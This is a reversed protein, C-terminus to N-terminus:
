APNISNLYDITDELCLVANARVNAPLVQLRGLDRMMRLENTLKAIAYTAAEQDAAYAAALEEPSLDVDSAVEVKPRGLLNRNTFITEHKALKTSKIIGYHIMMQRPTDAHGTLEALLETALPSQGADDDPSTADLLALLPAADTTKPLKSVKAAFAKYTAMYNRAHRSTFEFHSSYNENAVKLRKQADPFLNNWSGHLFGAKLQMLLYGLQLTAILTNRGIASLALEQQTIYNHVDNAKVILDIAAPEGISVNPTAVAEPFPSKSPTINKM